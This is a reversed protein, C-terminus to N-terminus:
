QGGIKNLENKAKIYDIIKYPVSCGTEDFYMWPCGSRCTEFYKCHLCSERVSNRHEILVKKYEEENMGTTNVNGFNKGRKDMCRSIDGNPNIHILEEPCTNGYQNYNNGNAADVLCELDFFYLGCREKVQSYLRYLKYQYERIQENTVQMRKRFEEESVGLPTYLRNISFSKIGTCLIFSMLMEVPINAVLADTITIIMTIKKNLEKIRALNEFFLAENQINGYRYNYDWSTTIGDCYKFAGLHADTIKYLLNTQISINLEKKVGARLKLLANSLLSMDFTGPEGGTLIIELKPYTSKEALDILFNVTNDLTQESMPGFFKDAFCHKCKLQCGQTLEVEVTGITLEM